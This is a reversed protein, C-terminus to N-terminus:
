FNFAKKNIPIISCKTKNNCGNKGAQSKAKYNKKQVILGKIDLIDYKICKM